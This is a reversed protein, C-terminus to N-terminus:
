KPTPGGKKLTHAVTIGITLTSVLSIEKTMSILTQSAFPEMLAISTSINSHHPILKSFIFHKLFTLSERLNKPLMLKTISIRQLRTILLSLIMIMSCGNQVMQALILQSTAKEMWLSLVIHGDKKLGTANAGLTLSILVQSPATMLLIQKSIVFPVKQIMSTSGVLHLLIPRLYPMSMTTTSIVRM